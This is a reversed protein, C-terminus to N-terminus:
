PNTVSMTGGGATTLVFTAESASTNDTDFCAAHTVYVEDTAHATQIDDTGTSPTTGLWCFPSAIVAKRTPSGASGNANFMRFISGGDRAFNCADYSAGYVKGEHHIFYQVTGTSSGDEWYCDTFKNGVSATQYVFPVSLRAAANAEFTVGVFTCGVASDLKLQYGANNICWCQFFRMTTCATDILIGGNSAAQIFRCNIFSSNICTNSCHLAWSATKEIFVNRMNFHVLLGGGTGYVVGKGTGASNPGRICLNEIGAWNGPVSVIDNNVSGDYHLITSLAGEGMLTVGDPITLQGMAPTSTTNYYGKPIFVVCGATGLTGNYAPAADIAKQITPYNKANIFYHPKTLEAAVSTELASVRLSLAATPDLDVKPWGPLSSSM